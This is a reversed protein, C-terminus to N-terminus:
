VSPLGVQPSLASFGLGVPQFHYKKWLRRIFVIFAGDAVFILPISALSAIIGFTMIPVTLGLALAIKHENNQESGISRLVSRLLLLSLAVELIITVVPPWDAGAGIAGTLLVSPFFLSGLVGLTLPRRSPRSTKATFFQLPVMRALWVLFLITFTSTFTILWGPWYNVIGFLVLCDVTLIVLCLVTRRGKLLSTSKLRPFAMHFLLIPLAISMASHFLVIGVTWVWNIGLWRGYVGLTGVPPANPNFLTQLALGEELIAYAFGLLFISAWGKGWRVVAERVLLIGTSYLGVNLGLLLLFLVPNMVLNAMSTSGSLYEPIGPSLLVLVLVPHSRLLATFRAWISSDAEVTQM